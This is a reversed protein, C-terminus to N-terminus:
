MTSFNYMKSSMNESNKGLAKITTRFTVINVMKSLVNSVGKGGPSMRGKIIMSHKVKTPLIDGSPPVYLLNHVNNYLCAEHRAVMLVQPPGHGTLEAGPTLVIDCQGKLIAM